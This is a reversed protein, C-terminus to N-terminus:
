SWQQLLGHLTDIGIGKLKKYNMKTKFCIFSDFICVKEEILYKVFQSDKCGSENTAFMKGVKSIDACVFVGGDPIIPEMGSDKLIKVLVDRKRMIEDRIM